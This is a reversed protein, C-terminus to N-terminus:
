AGYVKEASEFIIKKRIPNTVGEKEVIDVERGILESFEEKLDILHFLTLASDKEFSILFDVDSKDNFDERIVSGFVSLEKIKYKICLKALDEQKIVIGNNKLKSLTDM